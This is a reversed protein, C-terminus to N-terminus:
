PLTPHPILQGKVTGSTTTTTGTVSAQSTTYSGNFQTGASNVTVTMTTINRAYLSGDASAVLSIYQVYLGTFAPLVQWIGHGPTGYTLAGTSAVAPVVESTDTEVMSGEATFTALGSIAIPVPGATPTLTIQWSGALSPTAAAMSMPQALIAILGCIITALFTKGFMFDEQSHLEVGSSPPGIHM